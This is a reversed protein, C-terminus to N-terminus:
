RKCSNATPTEYLSCKCWQTSLFTSDANRVTRLATDDISWPGSVCLGTTCHRLRQTVRLCSLVGDFWVGGKWIRHKLILPRFDVGSTVRGGEEGSDVTRSGGSAM